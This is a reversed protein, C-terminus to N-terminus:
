IARPCTDVSFLEGVSLLLLFSVQCVTGSNDLLNKKKKQALQWVTRYQSTLSPLLASLLFVLIPTNM